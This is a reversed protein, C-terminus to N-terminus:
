VELRETKEREALKEAEQRGHRGCTFRSLGPHEHAGYLLEEIQARMEPFQPNEPPVYDYNTCMSVLVNLPVRGKPMFRDNLIDYVGNNFGIYNMMDIEREFECPSVLGCTALREVNKFSMQTKVLARAVYDSSQCRAFANKARAKLSPADFLRMLVAHVHEEVRIAIREWKAASTRRATSSTFVDVPTRRLETYRRLRLACVRRWIHFIFMGLENINGLREIRGTVEDRMECFELVCMMSEAAAPVDAELAPDTCATIAERIVMLEQDRRGNLGQAFGRLVALPDLPVNARQFARKVCERETDLLQTADLVTDLMLAAHAHLHAHGGAATCLACAIVSLSEVTAWTGGPNELLRDLAEQAKGIAVAAQGLTPQQVCRPVEIGAETCLEAGETSELFCLMRHGSGKCGEKASHCYVFLAPLGTVSTPPALVCGVGEGNAGARVDVNTQVGDIVLKAGSKLNTTQTARFYYHRGNPGRQTQVMPVVIGRCTRRILEDVVAIADQGDADVVVLSCNSSDLYGTRICCANQGKLKL